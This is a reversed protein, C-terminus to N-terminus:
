VRVPSPVAAVLHSRWNEGLIGVSLENFSFYFYCFELTEIRLFITCAVIFFFRAACRHQTKPLRTIIEQILDPPLYQLSM